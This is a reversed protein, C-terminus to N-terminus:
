KHEPAPAAPEEKKPATAKAPYFLKGAAAEQMFLETARDLPIRVVGAKSDVYGYHTLAWDERQHLQILEESPPALVKEYVADQWIKEFYSQLAAITVVLLILSGIAFLAIAGSKPESHDFGDKPNGRHVEQESL